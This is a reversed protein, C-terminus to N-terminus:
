LLYGEKDLSRTSDVMWSQFSRSVFKQYLWELSHDGGRM